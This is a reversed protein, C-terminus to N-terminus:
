PGTVGISRSFEDNVEPWDHTLRVTLEDDPPDHEVPQLFVPVVNARQRDILIPYGYM